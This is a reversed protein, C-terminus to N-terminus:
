CVELANLNLTYKFTVQLHFGMSMLAFNQDAAQLIWCFSSCISSKINTSM